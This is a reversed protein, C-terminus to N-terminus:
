WISFWAWIMFIPLVLIALISLFYPLSDWVTIAFMAIIYFPALLVFPVWQWGSPSSFSLSGWWRALRNDARGSYQAVHIQRTEGCASTFNLLVARYHSQNPAIRAIIETDGHGHTTSFTLWDVSDNVVAVAVIAWDGPAQLSIILDEGRSSIHTSYPLDINFTATSVDAQASVPLALTAVLLLMCLLLCLTKKM